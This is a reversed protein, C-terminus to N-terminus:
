RGEKPWAPAAPFKAIVWDAPKMPLKDPINAKKLAEERCMSVLPSPSHSPAPSLVEGGMRGKGTPQCGAGVQRPPASPSPRM